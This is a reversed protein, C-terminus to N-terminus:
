GEMRAVDDAFYSHKATPELQAWEVVGAGDERAAALEAVDRETFAFFRRLFERAIEEDTM